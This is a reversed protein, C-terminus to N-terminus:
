NFNRSEVPTYEIKVGEDLTFQQVWSWSNQGGSVGIIVKDYICVRNENRLDNRRRGRVRTDSPSVPPRVSLRISNRYCDASFIHFTSFKLLENAKTNSCLSCFLISYIIGGRGFDTAVSGQSIQINM